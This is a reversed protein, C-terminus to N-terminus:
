GGGIVVLARETTEMRLSSAAGPLAPAIMLGVDLSLTVAAEWRDPPRHSILVSKVSADPLPGGAVAARVLRLAEAQDFSVAGTSRLRDADLSGIADNAASAAVARLQQTRVHALGVDLTLAALVLVVFVAAPFLLLM